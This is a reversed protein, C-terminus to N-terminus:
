FKELYVDKLDGNYTNKKNSIELQKLEKETM